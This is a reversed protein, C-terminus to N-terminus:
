WGCRKPYELSESCNVHQLQDEVCVRNLLLEQEAGRM